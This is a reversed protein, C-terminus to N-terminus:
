IKAYVLGCPIKPWFYTTKRPWLGGKKATEIIQALKPVEQKLDKRGPVPPHKRLLGVASRSSTVYCLTQKLRGEKALELAATYRHHGDAILFGDHPSLASKLRRIWVPQDIVYLSRRVGDFSSAKYGAFKKFNNRQKSLASLIDKLSDSKDEAVLLIPSLHLGISLFHKKRQQIFKRYCREHPWIKKNRSLDLMGLLGVREKNGLHDILLYYSPSDHALTGNASWARWLVAASKVSPRPEELYIANHSHARLKKEIVPTLCDYPLCLTEEERLISPSFRTGAFPKIM